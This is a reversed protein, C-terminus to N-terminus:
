LTHESDNSTLCLQTESGAGSGASWAGLALGNAASGSIGDIYQVLLARREDQSRLPAFRSWGEQGFVEQFNQKRGRDYPWPRCHAWFYLTQVGACICGEEPSIHLLSSQVSGKCGCLLLTVRENAAALSQVMLKVCQLHRLAEPAVGLCLAACGVHSDRLLACSLFMCPLRAALCLVFCTCDSGCSM